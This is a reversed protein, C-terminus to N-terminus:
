YSNEWEILRSRLYETTDPFMGIVNIDEAEDKDIQFLYETQNKDILFKWRDSRISTQRAGNLAVRRRFIHRPPLKVNDFFVQSLDVGEGAFQIGALKGITTPIDLTQSLENSQGTEIKNKWHIVFPVRTGGEFLEAKFGRYPKNSAFEKNVAGNDSMFIIVTNNLLQELELKRYIKGIAEDLSQIMENYAREQNTVSGEKSWDIGNEGGEFRDAQDNPGQFPLHPATFPLYLSFNSDINKDIFDVAHKAVLDTVYGEERLISGNYYWDYVGFRTVKSQYDIEGAKCGVWFDFGNNLPLFEENWGLHWKGVIGNTYGANQLDKFITHVSSKLGKNQDERYVLAREFESGFSQPYMGTLLSVRSPTCVSSSHFNTFQFGQDIIKDINPTPINALDGYGLDDSLIIVFNPKNAPLADSSTCGIFTFVIVILPFCLVKKM